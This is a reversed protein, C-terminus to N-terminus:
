DRMALISVRVISRFHGLFRGPLSFQLHTCEARISLYLTKLTHVALEVIQQAKTTMEEARVVIAFLALSHELGPRLQRAGM